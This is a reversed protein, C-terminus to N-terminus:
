ETSKVNNGQTELLIIKGDKYERLMTRGVYPIKKGEENVWGM